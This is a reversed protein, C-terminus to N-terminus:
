LNKSITLKIIRYYNGVLMNNVVVGINMNHYIYTGMYCNNINKIM